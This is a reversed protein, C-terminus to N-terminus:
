CLLSNHRHNRPFQRSLLNFLFRPHFLISVYMLM